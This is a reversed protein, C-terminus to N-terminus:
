TLWLPYPRIFEALSLCPLCASPRDIPQSYQCSVSQNCTSSFMCYLICFFNTGDGGVGGKGVWGWISMMTIQDSCPESGSTPPSPTTPLPNMATVIVSHYHQPKEGPQTLPHPPSCGSSLWSLSSSGRGERAGAGAGGGLVLGSWVCYPYPHEQQTQQDALPFSPCSSWGRGGWIYPYPVPVHSSGAFSSHSLLLCPLFHSSCFIM